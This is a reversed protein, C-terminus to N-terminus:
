IELSQVTVVQELGYGNFPTNLAISYAGMAPFILVDGERIGSPLMLKSPLCDLSDCTPGFCTAPSRKGTVAGQGPRWVSYREQVGIDRAEFLSGYLGDTMFVTGDQRIAKIPVALLFASGVLGRGPECVLPPPMMDFAEDAANKIRKFTADLDPAEEDRHTAFGGGVNLRSLQVGAHAACRAAAYIYVAWTEPDTCQTGPHFTLSPTLGRARVEKLLMTVMEPSAGFKSGFDYVAGAVPLKLRLSIESGKPLDGLKDLETLSDVSWSAIGYDLAAAVEHPARVPNHYNLRADPAVSRVLEMEAPSAVDFEEMGAAVLTEVVPRFPNSKIAYTTQGPFGALYRAYNARLAEPSWFLVPTMPHEADLWAAPSAVPDTTIQM